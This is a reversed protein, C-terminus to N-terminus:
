WGHKNIALQGVKRVSCAKCPMMPGKKLPWGLELAIKHTQEEDHHWTMIHAKEISMTTSTDVLIACIEHEWHLYASFIVDNKTMIRIGFVLKASGKMLVLGDKDGSLKWGQIIAKWFIFPNFNSKPNYQVNKLTAKVQEGGFKNCWNGAIDIISSATM